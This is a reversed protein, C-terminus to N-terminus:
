AGAVVELPQRRLEANRVVRGPRAEVLDNVGKPAFDGRPVTGTHARGLWAFRDRLAPELHQLREGSSLNRM